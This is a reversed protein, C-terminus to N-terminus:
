DHQVQKKGACCRPSLFNGKERPFCLDTGSRGTISGEFGSSRLPGALIGENPCSGGHSNGATAICSGALLLRQCRAAAALSSRRRALVRSHPAPMEGIDVSRIFRHVYRRPSGLALSRSLRGNSCSNQEQGILAHQIHFTPLRSPFAAGSGSPCFVKSERANAWVWGLNPANCSIYGSM